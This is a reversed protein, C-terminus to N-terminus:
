PLLKPFTRKNELNVAGMHNSECKGTYYFKRYGWITVDVSDRGTVRIIERYDWCKGLKRRVTAGAKVSLGVSVQM